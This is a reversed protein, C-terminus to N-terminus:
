KVCVVCVMEEGDMLVMGKGAGEFRNVGRSWFLLCVNKWITVRNLDVQAIRKEYVAKVCGYGLRLGDV